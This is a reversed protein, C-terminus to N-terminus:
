LKVAGSKYVWCDEFKIFFFYQKRRKSDMLIKEAFYRQAEEPYTGVIILLNEWFLEECRSWSKQGRRNSDQSRKQRRKQSGTDGRRRLIFRATIEEGDPFILVLQCLM